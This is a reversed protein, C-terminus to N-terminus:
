QNAYKTVQVALYHVAEKLDNTRTDDKSTINDSLGGALVFWTQKDNNFELRAIETYESGSFLDYKQVSYLNDNLAVLKFNKETNKVIKSFNKAM